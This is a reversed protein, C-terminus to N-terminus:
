YGSNSIESNTSPTKSVPTSCASYYNQLYDFFTHIDFSYAFLNSNKYALYLKEKMLQALINPCKGAHTKYYYPLVPRLSFLYSVTYM